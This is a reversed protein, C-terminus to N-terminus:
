EQKKSLEVKKKPPLPSFYGILLIIIAVGIFALARLLGSSLSMDILFLKAIVCLLLVGGVFWQSRRTKRTAIVMTALATITWVIALLTEIIKSAIIQQMNWDIDSMFAVGRILVGNGWWFLLIPIGYNIIYHYNQLNIKYQEHQKLLMVFRYAIIGGTIGMIDMPNLLPIFPINMQTGSNMNAWILFLVLIVSVPIAFMWYIDQYPKIWNVKYSLLYSLIIFANISFLAASFHLSEQADYLHNFGITETFLFLAIFSLHIGHIFPKKLRQHLLFTNFKLLYFGSVLIACWILASWGSDILSRTEYLYILIVLASTPWILVSCSSLEFFTFARGAYYMGWCSVLIIALAILRVQPVSWIDGNELLIFLSYIWSIVGVFLAAFGIAKNDINQIKGHFWLTATAFIIIIEVVFMIWQDFQIFKTSMLLIFSIAILLTGALAAKKQQQLLSFVLIMVGEFAWVLSTWESSFAFPVALTAFIVSLMWFAIALLKGETQYRKLIVYSLAFYILAYLSSAVSVGFEWESVLRYQFLFGILPTGFLLTADLPINRKIKKRLTLLETAIGFIFWNAILFLQCPLYYVDQYHSIAWLCGVGFTFVFGILNLLRWVQWHSIILIGISLILYYSFLAIYNGDGSSLLIPALYGGLSALIALSIARQIIAFLISTFCVLVMIIFAFTIPIFDYIKTAAFITIYLGGIGGGQLILAYIRNKQQLWWGLGLLVFCGVGAMMLRTSASIVDNEISYKLLYSLGFFLLLMGIKALPNGTIIWKWILEFISAQQHTKKPKSKILAKRIIPMVPKFTDVQASQNTPKNKQIVKGENHQAVHHSSVQSVPKDALVHHSNSQIGIIPEASEKVFPITKEQARYSEQKDYAYHEVQSTTIEKTKERNEKIVTSAIDFIPTKIEDQSSATTKGVSSEAEQNNIDDKKGEKKLLEIIKDQQIQFHEELKKLRYLLSNTNMYTQYLWYLSLVVLLTSILTLM